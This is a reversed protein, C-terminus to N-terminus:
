KQARLRVAVSLHTQFGVPLHGCNASPSSSLWRIHGQHRRLSSINANLRTCRESITPMERLLSRPRAVTEPYTQPAYATGAHPTDADRWLNEPPVGSIARPSAHAGWVGPSCVNRFAECSHFGNRLRIPCPKTQRRWCLPARLPPLPQALCGPLPSLKVPFIFSDCCFSRPRRGRCSAAVGAPDSRCSDQRM